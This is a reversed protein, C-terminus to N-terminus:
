EVDLDGRCEKMYWNIVQYKGGRGRCEPWGIAIKNEKYWELIFRRSIASPRGTYPHRKQYEDKMLTIAQSVTGDWQTAIIWMIVEDWIEHLEVNRNAWRERNYDDREWKEHHWICYKEGISPHNKCNKDFIDGRAAGRKAACLRTLDTMGQGQSISKKRRSIYDSCPPCYIANLHMPMININCVKCSRM